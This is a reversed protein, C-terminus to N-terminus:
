AGETTATPKSQTIPTPLTSLGTWIERLASIVDTLEMYSITEDKGTSFSCLCEFAVLLDAASPYRTVTWQHVDEVAQGAVERLASVSLGALLSPDRKYIEVSERRRSEIRQLMAFIMEEREKPTCAEYLEQWTMRNTEAQTTSM